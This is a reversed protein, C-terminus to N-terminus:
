ENEELRALIVNYSKVYKKRYRLLTSESIHLKMCMAVETQDFINTYLYITRIIESHNTNFTEDYTTWFDLMESFATAENTPETQRTYHVIKKELTKIKEM